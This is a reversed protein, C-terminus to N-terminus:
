AEQEGFGATRFPGEGQVQTAALIATLLFWSYTITRIPLGPSFAYDPLTEGVKLRENESQWDTGM